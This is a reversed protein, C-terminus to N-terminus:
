RIRFGEEDGLEDSDWGDEEDRQALDLFRQLEQRRREEEEDYHGAVVNQHLLRRRPNANVPGRGRAGGNREHNRVAEARANYGLPPPRNGFPNYAQRRRRQAQRQAPLQAEADENDQVDLQMFQQVVVPFVRLPAGMAEAAIAAEDAQLARAAAEDAAEQAEAERAAEMAIQEWGRGGAFGQGDEPNQGDDGGELEWLRQYCDM